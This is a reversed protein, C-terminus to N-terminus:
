PRVARVNAEGGATAGDLTFPVQVLNTGRRLLARGQRGSISVEQIEPLVGNTSFVRFNAGKDAVDAGSNLGQVIAGLSSGLANREQETLGGSGGGGAVTKSESAVRVKVQAAAGFAPPVFPRGLEDDLQKWRTRDGAELDAPISRGKLPAMVRTAADRQDSKLFKDARDLRLSVARNSQGLTEYGQALLDVLRTPVTVSPTPRKQPDQNLRDATTFARELQFLASDIQRPSQWRGLQSYIVGLAIHFRYIKETQGSSYAEGKGHFISDEYRQLMQDLKNFERRDSYFNALALLAEPDPMRSRAGVALLLYQEQRKPDGEAGAREALSRVLQLFSEFPWVGRQPDTGPQILRPWWQFRSPALSDGEYLSLLEEACWSVVSVKQDRLRLGRLQQGTPSQLVEVRTERKQSLCYALLGMLEEKQPQSLVPENIVSFILDQVRVVQGERALEWLYWALLDPGNRLCADVLKQHVDDNQPQESAVLAYYRCADRWRGASLLLDAYNMAYLGKRSDNSEIAQSLSALADNTRGLELQVKALNNLIAGAGPKLELARRYKDLASQLAAPKSSEPISQAMRQEALGLYFYGEAQRTVDGQAGDLLKSFNAKAEELRNDKLATLGADVDM